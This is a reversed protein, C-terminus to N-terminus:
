DSNVKANVLFEMERYILDFDQIEQANFTRTCKCSSSSYFFNWRYFIKTLYLEYFEKKYNPKSEDLYQGNLDVSLITKIGYKKWQVGRTPWRSDRIEKLGYKMALQKIARGAMNLQSQFYDWENNEFYDICFIYQDPDMNLKAM